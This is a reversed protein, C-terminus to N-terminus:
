CHTEWVHVCAQAIGRGRGRRGEGEGEGGGDGEGGRCGVSPRLDYYSKSQEQHSREASLM